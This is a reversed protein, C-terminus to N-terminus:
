EASEMANLMASYLEEGSPYYELESGAYIGALADDRMIALARGAASRSVRSLESLVEGSADREGCAIENELMASYMNRLFEAEKRRLKRSYFIIYLIGGFVPIFTVVSLWTLKFEPNTDRNILSVLVSVNVLASILVFIISYAYAYFALFALLIIEALIFVACVTYRSFLVKLIKKM